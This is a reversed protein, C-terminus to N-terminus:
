SRARYLYGVKPDAWVPEFLKNLLDLAAQRKEAAARLHNGEVKKPRVPYDSFTFYGEPRLAQFFEEILRPPDNVHELVEAANIVDARPLPPHEIETTVAIAQRAISRADFRYSAFEVPGGALDVVVPSAGLVAFVLAYDAAGCGYDVMVCGHYDASKRAESLATVVSWALQLRNYHLMLRTLSMKLFTDDLYDLVVSAHDQKAFLDPPPKRTHLVNLEEYLRIADEKTTGFFGALEVARDDRLSRDPDLQTRKVLEDLGIM